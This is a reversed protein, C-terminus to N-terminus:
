GRLILAYEARMPVWGSSVKTTRICHICPMIRFVPLARPITNIIRLHKQVYILFPYDEAMPLLGCRDMGSISFRESMMTRSIATGPIGHLFIIERRTLCPSAGGETGVWLKGNDDRIIKRVINNGITFRNNIDHFHRIFIKNAKNLINLGDATGIWLEKSNNCITFVENNSISYPQYPDNSFEEVLNGSGKEFLKLGDNTGLWLLSDNEPEICYILPERSYDGTLLFRDYKEYESQYKVLGKESAIWLVGQKDEFIDFIQLDKLNRRKDFEKEIVLIEKGDFRNLGERTGFWVFGKRDRYICNV